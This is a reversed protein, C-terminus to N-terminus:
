KETDIGGLIGLTSVFPTRNYGDQEDRGFLFSGPPGIYSVRVGGLYVVIKQIIINPLLAWIRLTYAGEKSVGFSTTTYNGYLGWVANAVAHGWGNPMSGDINPGIPQVTTPDPQKDGSSFLTIAYELLNNDGLYNASPSIFLPLSNTPLPHWRSDGLVTPNSGKVGVGYQGGLSPFVYQVFKFDPLSNRMPQQWYGEYVFHTEIMALLKVPSYLILKRDLMHAWKGDLVENWGQTLNSGRYILEVSEWIVDNASNRKQGAYLQNRTGYIQIKNVIEGGLVPHLLM